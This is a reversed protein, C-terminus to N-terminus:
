EPKGSLLYGRQGTEADKMQSLLLRLNQMATMGQTVREATDVSAKFAFQSFLAMALVAVIAVIFGAQAILPLPRKKMRVTALHAAGSASEQSM